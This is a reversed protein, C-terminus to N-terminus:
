RHIVFSMNDHLYKGGICQSIYHVFCKECTYVPIMEGEGVNALIIQRTPKAGCHQCRRFLGYWTSWISRMSWNKVMM